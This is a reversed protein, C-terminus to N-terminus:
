ASEYLGTIIMQNEDYLHKWTILFFILKGNYMKKGKQM